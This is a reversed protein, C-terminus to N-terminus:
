LKDLELKVKKQPDEGWKKTFVTIILNDDM